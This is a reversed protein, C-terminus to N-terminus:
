NETVDFSGKHPTQNIINLFPLVPGLESENLIKEQSQHIQVTTGTPLESPSNAYYVLHVVDEDSTNKIKMGTVDGPVCNDKLVIVQNPISEFSDTNGAPSRLYSMEFYQDIDTPNARHKHMFLGLNGYLEQCLLVRAQERLNRLSAM